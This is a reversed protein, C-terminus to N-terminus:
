AEVDHMDSWGMREAALSYSAGDPFSGVSRRYKPLAVEYVAQAADM